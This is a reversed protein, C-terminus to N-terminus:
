FIFFLYIWPFFMPVNRKLNMRIKLKNKTEHEVAPLHGISGVKITFEKSLQTEAPLGTKFDIGGFHVVKSPSMKM